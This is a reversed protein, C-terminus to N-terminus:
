EVGRGCMLVCGGQSTSMCWVVSGKYWWIYSVGVEDENYREMNVGVTVMKKM